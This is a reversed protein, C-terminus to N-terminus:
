NTEVNNMQEVINTAEPTMNEAEAAVNNTSM